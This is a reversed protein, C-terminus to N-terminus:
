SHQVKSCRPVTLHAPPPCPDTRKGLLIYLSETLSQVYNQLLVLVSLIAPHCLTLLNKVNGFSQSEKLTLKTVPIPFADLTPLSFAFFYVSSGNGLCAKVQDRFAAREGTM